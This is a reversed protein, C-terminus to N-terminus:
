EGVEEIVGIIESAVLVVFAWFFWVYDLGWAAGAGIVYGLIRVTSKIFSIAQHENV